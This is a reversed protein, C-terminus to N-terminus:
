EQNGEIEVAAKCEEAIDLAGRENSRLDNDTIQGRGDNYIWVAEYMNNAIVNRRVTPNGGSTVEVGARANEFIENKEFLGRGNDYIYMGSRESRSIRNRRLTPNGGSKVRVGNSRNNAIENDELTGLGDTHVYAGSQQGEYIRNQRLTPNGGSKIEVGAFANSFIDNDELMGLGNAYVYVGAQKGDHIRNRRLTPNGGSKISVGALGNAFIENDELIGVAGEHTFVGNQRSGYIRNRRLTPNSAKIEVGSLQNNFIENDELAGFGGEYILIGNQRCDHIRNRRLRPDAGNHIGVGSLSASTIDCDDLDLRGQGIDVGFWKGEGAQRITLNVARGMNAQFKIVHAGVAEIVVEGPEGDGIIEVAKDIIVAERYLGPRVLIRYGSEAAALAGALSSHDGRHLADVVLTPPDKKSAGSRPAEEISVSARNRGTEDGTQQEDASARLVVQDAHSREVPAHELARVIQGALTAVTKGVSPSTFPEFRLERWDAYQRASIARAIADTERSGENNLIPCSVYYIPLILDARGLHEEREFFREVEARCATSKFFAPTIIPILFTTADLADEIREKWQQGWSIDNRDQFIPFKEGLQMRVEGSLRACLESLRGNEHQDDLRVYSMFGAFTQVM